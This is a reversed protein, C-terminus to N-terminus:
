ALKALYVVLAEADLRHRCLEHGGHVLVPVDEGYRQRLAPDGDVDVVEVEFRGLGQLNRLAGLMEDCLHCHARSYLTLTQEGM